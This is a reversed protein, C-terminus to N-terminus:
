MVERGAPPRPAALDALGAVFEEALRRSVCELNRRIDERGAGDALDTVGKLLCCPVGRRRCAAAVAFGEMDVVDARASLRRRRDDQFVAEAVTALRAPPLHRWPSEDCDAAEGDADADIAQTIRYARGVEVADSLGGCVGVNVVAEPGWRDILHEVARAAVDKGIGSIVIVGEGRGASADFAHTEFPEGGVPRAGLGALLAEAEARTAVVIGIM